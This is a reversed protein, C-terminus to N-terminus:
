RRYFRNPLLQGAGTRFGAALAQWTYAQAERVAEPVGRGNALAAAV